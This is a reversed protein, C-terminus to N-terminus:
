KFFPFSRQKIIMNKTPRVQVRGRFYKEFFIISKPTLGVVHNKSHGDSAVYDNPPGIPSPVVSANKQALADRMLKIQSYMTDKKALKPPDFPIEILIFQDDQVRYIKDFRRFLETRKVPENEYWVMPDEVTTVVIMTAELARTAAFVNITPMKKDKDTLDLFWAHDVPDRVQKLSFNDLILTDEGSYGMLTRNRSQLSFRYGTFATSKGCGAPGSLLVVNRQNPVPAPPAYKNFFMGYRAELMAYKTSLENRSLLKADAKFALLDTRKGSEKLDPDAVEKPFLCGMEYPGHLRVSDKNTPKQSYHYCNRAYELTTIRKMHFGHGLVKRIYKTASHWGHFKRFYWTMDFHHIKSERGMEAQFKCGVSGNDGFRAQLAEADAESTFERKSDNAIVHYYCGLSSRSM